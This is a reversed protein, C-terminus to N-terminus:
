RKGGHRSKIQVKIIEKDQMKEPNSALTQYMPLIYDFVDGNLGWISGLDRELLSPTITGM